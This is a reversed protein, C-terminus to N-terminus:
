NGTSNTCAGKLSAQINGERKLPAATTYQKIVMSKEELRLPAATTYQKIVTSKEELRTFTLTVLISVKDLMHSSKESVFDSTYVLHKVTARYPLVQKRCPKKRSPHQVHFGYRPIKFEKPMSFLAELHSIHTIM